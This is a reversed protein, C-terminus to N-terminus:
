GHRGGGSGHGIGCSSKCRHGKKRLYIAHCRPCIALLMPLPLLPTLIMRGGAVEELNKESLEDAQLVEVAARIEEETAEVGEEKLETQLQILLNQNDIM